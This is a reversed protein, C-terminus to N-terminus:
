NQNSSNYCLKELLEIPEQAINGCKPSSKNGKEHSPCPVTHRRDFVAIMWIPVSLDHAPAFTLDRLWVTELKKLLLVPAPM